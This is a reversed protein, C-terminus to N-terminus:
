TVSRFTQRAYWEATEGLLRLETEQLRRCFTRPGTALRLAERQVRLYSAMECFQKVRAEYGQAVAWSIAGVALVPFGVAAIGLGKELVPVSLYTMSMAIKTITAAIAGVTLWNFVRNARALHRKEKASSQEYYAIQGQNPDSDSLRRRVYQDRLDQWPEGRSQRTTSLHLINLTRLLPTLEPPLRLRFLYDLPTHLQGLCQVSRNIEATLRAIAWERAVHWKHLWKHVSFGSLLFVLEMGLTIPIWFAPSPNTETAVSDPAGHEALVMTAALTALIHAFIVVLAAYGFLKRQLAARQSAHGKVADAFQGISSLASGSPPAQMRLEQMSRPLQPTTFRDLDHWREEFCPRGERLSVEIEMAPIGRHKALELLQLTGGRKPEAGERLLCIVLDSEAAIEFNTDEFRSQRDSADSVVRREVIHTSQLLERAERSQEESFDAVGGPGRAALYADEQQPLFIRQPMGLARCARTFAADAGIAVQSIGCLFHRQADLRLTDGLSELCDCLYAELERELSERHPGEPMPDFLQRSGAFGVQVVCPLHCTPPSADM